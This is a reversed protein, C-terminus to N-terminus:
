CTRAMKFSSKTVLNGQGHFANIMVMLHSMRHVYIGVIVEMFHLDELIKARLQM